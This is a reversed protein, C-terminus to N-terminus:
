AAGLRRRLWGLGALGFGLLALTAPESVELGHETLTYTNGTYPTGTFGGQPTFTFPTTSFSMGPLLPNLGNQIYFIDSPAFAYPNHLYINLDVLGYLRPGTPGLDPVLLGNADLMYLDPVRM